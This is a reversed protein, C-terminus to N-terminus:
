KCTNNYLVTLTLHQTKNEFTLTKNEFTLTKNELTIMLLDLSVRGPQSDFTM